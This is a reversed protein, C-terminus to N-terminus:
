ATGTSKSIMWLQVARWTRNSIAHSRRGSGDSAIAAAAQPATLARVKSAGALVSKTCASPYHPQIVIADYPLEGMGTTSCVKAIAVNNESRSKSLFGFPQHCQCSTSLLSAQRIECCLCAEHIVALELCMHQRHSQHGATDMPWPAQTFPSTDLLKAADSM